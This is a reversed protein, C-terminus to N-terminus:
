QDSEAAPIRMREGIIRACGSMVVNGSQDILRSLAESRLEDKKVVTNEEIRQTGKVLGPPPSPFLIFAERISSYSRGGTHRWVGFEPTRQGPLFHPSNGIGSLTGGEAYTILADFPPLTTETGCIYPTVVLRWTGEIALGQDSHANVITRNGPALTSLVLALAAPPLIRSTM